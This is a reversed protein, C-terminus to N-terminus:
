YQCRISILDTSFGKTAIKKPNLYWIDYIGGGLLIVINGFNQTRYKFTAISKKFALKDFITITTWM